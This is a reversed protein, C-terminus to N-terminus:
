DRRDLLELEEGAKRDSHGKENCRFQFGYQKAGQEEDLKEHM